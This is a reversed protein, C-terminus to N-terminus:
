PNLAQTNSALPIPIGALAFAISSASAPLLNSSWAVAWTPEALPAAVTTPASM